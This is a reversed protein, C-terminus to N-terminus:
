PQRRQHELENTGIAASTPPLRLLLAELCDVEYTWERGAIDQDSVRLVLNRYRRYCHLATELAAPLVRIDADEVVIAM